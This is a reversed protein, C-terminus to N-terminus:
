DAAIEPETEELPLTVTFTSGVGLQSHVTIEGGLQQVTEAVIALGLGTGGNHRSRAKDVRYFREFVRPVDAEAIGIGTDRVTFTLLDASKVATITVRGGVRNYYVANNVLNRVVQSLKPASTTIVLSEPMDRQVQLQKEKIPQALPQLTSDVLATLDVATLKPQTAQPRSLTLIDNILQTLRQSESAIIGIFKEATAPDDKAGALLTEAFGSIATVPTKLEHSVNGVFDLQMQEVQRLYTVDYLLVLVQERAPDTNLAMVNADVEKQTAVLTIEKHHSKGNRFTHEIMKALAYTKVDDLYNHRTDAVTHGVFTSLAPNSLIVNRHKDILLVGLPLHDILRDFSAQRLAVKQRLHSVSGDLADVANGLALFPSDPTLILPELPENHQMRRLNAAMAALHGQWYRQQRAALWLLGAVIFWYGIVFAAFAKPAVTTLSARRQWVGYFTQGRQGVFVQTAQGNVTLTTAHNAITRERDVLNKLMKQRTGQPTGHQATIVVDNDTALTGVPAAEEAGLARYTQYVGRLHATQQQYLLRNAGFWLCFFGALALLSLWWVRRKFRKNM